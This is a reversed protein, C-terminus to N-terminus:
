SRRRSRATPAGDFECENVKSAYAAMLEREGVTWVSPGRMMEQILAGMTESHIAPRYLLTRFVDPVRQRM